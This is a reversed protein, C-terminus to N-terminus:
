WDVSDNRGRKDAGVRRRSRACSNRAWSMTASRSAISYRPAAAPSQVTPRGATYRTTM